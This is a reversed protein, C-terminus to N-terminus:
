EYKAKIKAISTRQAVIGEQDMKISENLLAKNAKLIKINGDYTIRDDSKTAADLKVQESLIEADINVILGQSENIRNEALIIQYESSKINEEDDASMTKSETPEVAQEVVKMEKPTLEVGLDADYKVEMNLADGIARVPLYSTGDVFIAKKEITVGDVKVPIEGEIQKGILTTIEAGYVSGATALAVGVVMGIIYKRM